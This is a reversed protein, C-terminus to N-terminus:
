AGMRLIELNIRVFSYESHKDFYFITCVCVINNKCEFAFHKKVFSLGRAFVHVILLHQGRYMVLPTVVVGKGSNSCSVDRFVWSFSCLKLISLGSCNQPVSAFDRSCQSLSNECIRSQLMFSPFILHNMSPSSFADPKNNHTIENLNSERNQKRSQIMLWNSICLLCYIQFDLRSDPSVSCFIFKSILDFVCQWQM